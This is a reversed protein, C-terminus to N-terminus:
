ATCAARISSAGVRQGPDCGIAYPSDGVGRQRFSRGRRGCHCLRTPGNDVYAVDCPGRSFPNGVTAKAGWGPRIVSAPPAVNVGVILHASLASPEEWIACYSGEVLVARWAPGRRQSTGCRPWYESPSLRRALQRSRRCYHLTQHVARFAHNFRHDHLRQFPHALL